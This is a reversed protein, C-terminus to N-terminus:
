SKAVAHKMVDWGLFTSLLEAVDEIRQSIAAEESKPLIVRPVWACSNHHAANREVSVRLRYGWRLRSPHKFRGTEMHQSGVKEKDKGM